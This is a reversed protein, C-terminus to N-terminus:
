GPKRRDFRRPSSCERRQKRLPHLLQKRGDPPSLPLFVSFGTRSGQSLPSQLNGNYPFTTTGFHSWFFEQKGCKAMLGGGPSGPHGKCADVGARQGADVGCLHEGVLVSQHVGQQRHVAQVPGVTLGNHEIQLQLSFDQAALQDPGLVIGGTHGTMGQRLGHGDGAPAGQGFRVLAPQGQNEASHPTHLFRHPLGSSKVAQDAAGECQGGM